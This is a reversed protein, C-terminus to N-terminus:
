FGKNILDYGCHNIFNIGDIGYDFSYASVSNLKGNPVDIEEDILDLLFIFSSHIDVEKACLTIHLKFEIDPKKEELYSKIGKVYRVAQLLTSVGVKEKKLEYVTINLYPIVANQGFCPYYKKEVTLLDLIGYNGIRLQRFKKGEINLNKQQLKANDSEWIINELDKELFNM